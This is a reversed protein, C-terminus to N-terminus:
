YNVYTYSVGKGFEITGLDSRRKLNYIFSISDNDLILVTKLKFEKLKDDYVARMIASITLNRPRDKEIWMGPM